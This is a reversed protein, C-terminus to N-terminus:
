EREEHVTKPCVEWMDSPWYEKNKKDCQNKAAEEHLWLSDVEMPDYNSYVVAYVIM